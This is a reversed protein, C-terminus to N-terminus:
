KVLVKKGNIIYIGKHLNNLDEANDTDLVKVGTINYVTWNTADDAIIDEIGAPLGSDNKVTYKLTIGEVSNGNRDIFYGTPIELIYTGNGLIPESTKLASQEM